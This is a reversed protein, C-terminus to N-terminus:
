FFILYVRAGLLSIGVFRRHVTFLYSIQIHPYIYIYIFLAIIQAVSIANTLSSEFSWSSTPDFLLGLSGDRSEFSFQEVCTLHFMWRFNQQKFRIKETKLVKIKLMVNKPTSIMKSKKLIAHKTKKYFTYNILINTSVFNVSTPEKVLKSKLM